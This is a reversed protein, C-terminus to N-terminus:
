LSMTLPIGSRVSERLLSTLLGFQSRWIRLASEAEEIRAGESLGREGRHETLYVLVSDLSLRYERSQLEELLWKASEIGFQEGELRSDIDSWYYLGLYDLLNLDNYSDRFNPFASNGLWIDAGM